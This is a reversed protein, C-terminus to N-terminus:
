AVAVKIRFGGPLDHVAKKLLRLKRFGNDADVVAHGDRYAIDQGFIVNGNRLLDSYGTKVSDFLFFAIIGADGCAASIHIGKGPIDSVNQFLNRLCRGMLGM